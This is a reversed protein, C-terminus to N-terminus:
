VRALSAARGESNTCIARQSCGGNDVLCKDIDTCTVGENTDTCSYFEPDGRAGNDDTCIMATSTDTVTDADLTM